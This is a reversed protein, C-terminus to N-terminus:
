WGVLRATLGNQTGKFISLLKTCVKNEFEFKRITAVLDKGIMEGTHRGVPSNFEILHNKLM